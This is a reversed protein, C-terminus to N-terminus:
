FHLRESDSELELLSWNGLAIPWPINIDIGKPTKNTNEIILAKYNFKSSSSCFSIEGQVTQFLKLAWNTEAGKWVEHIKTCLKTTM